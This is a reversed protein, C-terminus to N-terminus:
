WPCPTWWVDINLSPCFSIFPIYLSRFLLIRSSIASTSPRRRRRCFFQNFLYFDYMQVLRIVSNWYVFMEEGARVYPAAEEDLIEDIRDVMEQTISNGDKRLMAYQKMLVVPVNYRKALSVLGKLRAKVQARLGTYNQRGKIMFWLGDDIVIVDPRMSLIEAEIRKM